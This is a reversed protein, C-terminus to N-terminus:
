YIYIYIGLYMYNGKSKVYIYLETLEEGRLDLIKGNQDTLTLRIRHIDQPIIPLYLRQYPEQIIKVGPSVRPFFSYLVSSPAGKVYSSTVCDVNVLVSNVPLINIFNESKHYGSIYKRPKFGLM